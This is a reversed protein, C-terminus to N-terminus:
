KEVARIYRQVNKKLTDPQIDFKAAVAAYARARNIRKGTRAQRALELSVAEHQKKLEENTLRNGEAIGRNREDMQRGKLAHYEVERVRLRELKQGIRIAAVLRTEADINASEVFTIEGLLNAADTAIPPADAALAFSELGAGIDITILRDGKSPPSLYPRIREAAFQRIRLLEGHLDASLKKGRKKAPPIKGALYDAKRQELLKWRENDADIASQPWQAQPLPEAHQYIGNNVIRHTGDEAATVIPPSKTKRKAM